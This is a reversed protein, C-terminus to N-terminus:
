YLTSKCKKIHSFCCPLNPEYLLCYVSKWTEPIGWHIRAQIHSFPGYRSAPLCALSTHLLCCSDSFVVWYAMILTLRDYDFDEVTVSPGSLPASPSHGAVAFLSSFHLPLSLLRCHFLVAWEKARKCKVWEKTRANNQDKVAVSTM